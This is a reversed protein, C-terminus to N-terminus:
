ARPTGVLQRAIEVVNQFEMTKDLVYDAQLKLCQDRLEPTAYNTLIIVTTHPCKPRFDRLLEIGTTGPLRLDLIVLDPALQEIKHAAEIGNAAEEITSVGPLIELMRRLSTRIPAFDDAILITM